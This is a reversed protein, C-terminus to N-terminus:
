GPAVQLLQEAQPLAVSVLQSIGAEAMTVGYLRHMAAMTLPNHTVILFRTATTEAMHLLLHTLREVNADDLPADVEDLVCVPAVNTRFLAFILAIATLAQEGGSLLSLSQLKKGPPQARIELGSQLPDEHEILELEAIGGGFLTQFLETFHTEVQRFAALLRARGERNLTGISARLRRVAIELEDHEGQQSSMQEELAQLEIDARLNVAGIRERATTLQSLQARITEVDSDEAMSLGAPACAFRERCQQVVAVLQERYQEVKAARTARTERLEAMDAEARRREEDLEALTLEAAQVAAQADEQAQQAIGLDRELLELRARLAEPETMLSDHEHSLERARQQLADVTAAAKDARQQWDAIERGFRQSRARIEAIERESAAARARADALSARARDDKNRADAVQQAAANGDPLGAVAAVAQDADQHASEAEAQLRQLSNEIADQRAEAQSRAALLGQLRSQLKDRQREAETRKTRAQRAATEAERLQQGATTLEAALQLMQQQPAKIDHAIEQLRNDQMLSEAVAGAQGGPPVVLGDWRWLWGDPSVLRQGPRLQQLRAQDPPTDVVGVQALFRSLEKPARVFDQLPQCFDPLLPDDGNVPLRLWHRLQPQAEGVLSNVDEGLAAALAAEHGPRAAIVAQLRSAAGTDTGSRRHRLRELAEAEAQLGAIERQLRTRAQELAATQRRAAEAASEADGIAAAAEAQQNSLDALGQEAETIQTETSTGAQEQQLRALEATLRTQERHLRDLRNRAVEAEARRSRADAMLAAHTEVALALQRGADTADAEILQLQDKQPQLAAMAATWDQELQAQDALLRAKTTIADQAQSEARAADNRAHDLTTRLDALRQEMGSKRASVAAQEAVLAHLRSAAQDLAHRKKPVVAAAMAQATSASEARNACQQLAAEVEDLQKRASQSEAVLEAWNHRLLKEESARIQESLQRYRTASRAQRELSAAQRRLGQLLDALRALNADAARLRQEAEQRRANLGAIGAADELLRRREQPRANIIAAVRGQSVLAPSNAGTAADAFLLRVDKQRTERGNVRYVSGAGRMVQREVELQDSNNYDAPAKRASNDLVLAVSAIDRRARRMTGAFIVDDMGAGSTRLARGSGEGMVWRLAELLNSKGCGNPGVIGTLGDEIGIEVTDAFSKFGSLRLRSFKM